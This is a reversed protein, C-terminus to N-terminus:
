RFYVSGVKRGIVRWIFALGQFLSERAAELLLTGSHGVKIQDAWVCLSFDQRVVGSGRM